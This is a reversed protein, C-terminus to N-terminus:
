EGKLSMLKAIDEDTLKDVLTRAAYRNRASNSACKKCYRRFKGYKDRYMHVNDDSLEHGRKCHTKTQAESVNHERTVMELHFPSVCRKNHCKHHIVYDEKIEGYVHEYMLRHARINKGKVKLFGYGETLAGIWLWCVRHSQEADDTMVVFYKCFRAFEKNTM